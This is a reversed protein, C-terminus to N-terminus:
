QSVSRYQDFYAISLNTGISIKGSEPALEGLLLKILTTKGVGNGGILGVKTVGSFSVTLTALLLVQLVRNILALTLM